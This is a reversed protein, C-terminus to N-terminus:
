ERGIVASTAKEERCFPCIISRKDTRCYEKHCDSCVCVHGCSYLVDPKNDLCICCYENTDFRPKIIKVCPTDCKYCIEQGMEVIHGCVANVCDNHSIIDKPTNIVDIDSDQVNIRSCHDNYSPMNAITNEVHVNGHVRTVIFKSEVFSQFKVDILTMDGYNTAMFSPYKSYSVFLSDSIAIKGYLDAVAINIDPSVHIHSNRIELITNENICKFLQYINMATRLNIISCDAIIANSGETYVFHISDVISTSQISVVSNVSYVVKSCHEIRSKIVKCCSHHIYFLLAFGNFTCNDITIDSDNTGIMVAHINKANILIFRCNVFSIAANDVLFLSDIADNDYFIMCDVFRIHQNNKPDFKSYILCNVFEFCGFENPITITNARITINEFRITCNNGATICCNKETLIMANENKNKSSIKLSTDFHMSNKINIDGKLIISEVRKEYCLDKFEEYTEVIM